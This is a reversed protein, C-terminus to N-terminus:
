DGPTLHGVPAAPAEDRPYRGAGHFSTRALPAVPAARGLRAAATAVLLRDLAPVDSASLPDWARGRAEDTRPQADLLWPTARRSRPTDQFVRPVLDRPPNVLSLGNLVLANVAHGAPVLRTAPTHHTARDMVEGIGLADVLGAVLGLPDVLPSPSPHPM